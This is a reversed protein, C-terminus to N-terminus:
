VAVTNIKSAKQAAEEAVLDGLLRLLTFRLM